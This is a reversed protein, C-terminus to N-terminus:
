VASRSRSPAPKQRCLRNRSGHGAISISPAYLPQSCVARDVYCSSLEGFSAPNVPSANLITERPKAGTANAASHTLLGHIDPM